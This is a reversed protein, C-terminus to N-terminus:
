ALKPFPEFDVGRRWLVLMVVALKRAVAVHARGRGIRGSLALGWQRLSSEQKCGRLLVTASTLLHSRTLTNGMKTISGSRSLTGSERLRPVLGFFSGISTPTGFRHPEAVATMFSVACIPGVGPVTMLRRCVPHERAINTLKSTLRDAQTKFAAEIELLPLVEERLDIITESALRLVEAKAALPFAGAKRNKALAGGHLRIVSRVLEQIGLRQRVLRTRLILQSRLLQTEPSKLLVQSVTNRGVRAIEAIGRADNADTKVGRLALFRSVQLTEFIAVPIGLERLDRALSIGFSGAEMGVLAISEYRTASLVSMVAPANTPVTQQTLICGADDIVCVATETLGIDLGVWNRAGPM